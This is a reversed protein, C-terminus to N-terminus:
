ISQCKQEEKNYSYIEYFKGKKKYEVTRIGQKYYSIFMDRDRQQKETRPHKMFWVTFERFTTSFTVRYVENGSSSLQEKVDIFAVEDIQVLSPNNKLEQFELILKENPDILEGKCKKCYRATIDNENNCAECVKYSWRYGCEHLCARGYHTPLPKNNVIIPNNELDLFYGDKGLLYGEVNKRASFINIKKCSPCEVEIPIKEGKNTKTKIEPKFIDGDPAFRNLNEAYDLLLVDKKNEYLRLGRGIIQQFLSASETPRLIAIVDVIPADFGTTLTAVSVLYKINGKSFRKLISERDKKLTEGTIIASLEKPLSEMIELSHKISTAFIMVSKRDRSQNVIDSIIHATLRGQGLTARDLDKQDYKGMKNLTLFSTDYHEGINGIKVNTLYRNEILHEASIDYILNDYFPNIAYDENLAKNDLGIKYIYGTNMRYPTATLGIIRMMPNNNKLEEIISKITNTTGHSEDIITLAFQDKFKQISNKVSQPTGFIVPHKLDKSISASFISAPNGTLLYKERNQKVLESSPALILIKKNSLRHIEKAIESIIISKGAGTAAVILGSNLTTQLHRISKDICEKQYPRLQM